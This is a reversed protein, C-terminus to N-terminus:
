RVLGRGEGGPDVKGVVVAHLNLSMAARVILGSPEITSNAGFRVDDLVSDQFNTTISDLVLIEHEGRRRLRRSKDLVFPFLPSQLRLRQCCASETKWRSLNGDLRDGIV